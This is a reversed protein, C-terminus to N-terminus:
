HEFHLRVTRDKEGALEIETEVRKGSADLVSIRYRGPALPGVPYGTRTDIPFRMNGEASDMGGALENGLQDRVSVSCSCPLSAADEAFVELM